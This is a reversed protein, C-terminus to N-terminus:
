YMYPNYVYPNNYFRPSCVYEPAIDRSLGHLGQAIWPVGTWAGLLSNGASHRAEKIGAVSLGLGLATTLGSGFRQWGSPALAGRLDSLCEVCFGRAETEEEDSMMREFEEDEQEQELDNLYSELRQISNDVKQVRDLAKELAELQDRCERPNHAYAKCFAKARVRGNSRFFKRSLPPAQWPACIEEGHAMPFLLHFLPSRNTNSDTWFPILFDVLHNAMSRNEVVRYEFSSKDKFEKRFSKFRYARRTLFSLIKKRSHLFPTTRNNYGSDPVFFWDDLNFTEEEPPKGEESPKGGTPPNAEEAQKRRAEEAQKRRAEETQKRRAEETQKRRAEEAQERRTQEAQERRAEEAQERRTQEAQEKRRQEAQERRTQEAQKRRAEEAQKRRAEEAQKRRAEEAQKRRAEETQKRRAEEAQKRRAEETQKRRAEETQKRRAEEAQKRRAEEAQKRRAEEAQKRRAEEAQKRRAEEAQKRRAEEAQKRRAEEAQKRRAEEAQKRRVEEAQAKRAQEAKEQEGGAVPKSEEIPRGSKPDKRLQSSPNSPQTLPVDEIITIIADDGRTPTQKKASPSTTTAPNGRRDGSSVPPRDTARSGTAGSSTTSPRTVTGGSGRSVSPRGTTRSGTTASPSTATGSGGGSVPQEGSSASAAGSSSPSNRAPTVTRRVPSSPSSPRVIQSPSPCNDFEWNREKGEMYLVVKEAAEDGDMRVKEDSLTNALEDTIKKVKDKARELAGGSGEMARLRKQLRKIEKKRSSSSSKRGGSLLLLDTQSLCFNGFSFASLSFFCLSIFFSRFLIRLFHKQRM